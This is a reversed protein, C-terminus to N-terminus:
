AVPATLPEEYTPPIIPSPYEDPIFMPQESEESGMICLRGTHDMSQFIVNNAFEDLKQVAEGHVNKDGTLGLIEVLGAKNVERSIIKAALTIDYLLQTFEGTAKPYFREQQLIFREITILEQTM